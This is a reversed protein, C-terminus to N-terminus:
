SLHVSNLWVKMSIILNRGTLRLEKGILSAKITAKKLPFDDAPEERAQLSAKKHYASPWM